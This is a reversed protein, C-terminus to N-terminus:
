QRAFRDPRFPAALPDVVGRLIEQTLLRGLLPGLTVGSHTVAEYYGPAASVAGLCSRGDVPLPRTGIRAAVVPAE